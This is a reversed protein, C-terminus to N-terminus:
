EADDGEGTVDRVADALRGFLRVFERSDKEGLRGLVIATFRTVDAFYERLKAEGSETLRVITQRRDSASRTRTVYGAEELQNLTQAMRATSVRCRRALEGATLEGGAHHLVHMADKRGRGDWRRAAAGMYLRLRRGETMLEHALEEYSGDRDADADAGPCEFKEDEV